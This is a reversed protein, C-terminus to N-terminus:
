ASASKRRRRSKPTDDEPEPEEGWVREAYEPTIPGPWRSLVGAIIIAGGILIGSVLQPIPISWLEQEDLRSFSLAFRMVGYLVIYSCFLWGPVKLFRRLVLLLIAIIALDGLMEYGGAAPHV